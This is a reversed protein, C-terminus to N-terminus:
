TSPARGGTRAPLRAAGAEPPPRAPTRPREPPPPSHTSLPRPRPDHRHGRSKQRPRPAGALAEQLPAARRRPAPAAAAPGPPLHLPPPAPDRDPCRPDHADLLSAPGQLLVLLAGAADGGRVRIGPDREPVPGGVLPEGRLRALGIVAREGGRRV